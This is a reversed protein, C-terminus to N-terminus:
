TIEAPQPCQNQASQAGLLAAEMDRKVRQALKAGQDGPAVFAAIEISDPEAGGVQLYLSHTLSKRRVLLDVAWIGTPKVWDAIPGDTYPYPAIEFGRVDSLKVTEVCRGSRLVSVLDHEPN